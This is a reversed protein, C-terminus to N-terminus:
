AEDSDPGMDGLIVDAITGMTFHYGAWVIASPILIFLAAQRALTAPLRRAASAGARCLIAICGCVFFGAFSFKTLLSLGIAIAFGPALPSARGPWRLINM